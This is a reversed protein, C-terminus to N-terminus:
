NQVVKISLTFKNLLITTKLMSCLYSSETKNIESLIFVASVYVYIHEQLTLRIYLGNSLKFM